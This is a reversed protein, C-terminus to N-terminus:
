SEEGPLLEQASISVEHAVCLGAEGCYSGEVPPIEGAALSMAVVIHHAGSLIGNTPDFGRWGAGPLYLECWGHTHAEEGMSNPSSCLYGSVYRAAIGLSRAAEIFLHAFDRCTGEGLRITEECSQIGEEHRVTYRFLTPLARCLSTLTGMTSPVASVGNLFPRIFDSLEVNAPGEGSVLYPALCAIEKDTYSIPLQLAREDLLFDFPNTIKQELLLHSTILLKDTKDPFTAKGLITGEADLNWRVAANSSVVIDSKLVHLGPTSRPVLRLLHPTLEVPRRYRYETTHNIQHFMQYPQSLSSQRTSVHGFSNLPVFFGAM